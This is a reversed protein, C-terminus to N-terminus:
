DRLAEQCEGCLWYADGDDCMTLTTDTNTCDGCECANTPETM